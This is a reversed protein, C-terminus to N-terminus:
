PDGVPGILAELFSFFHIFLYLRDRISIGKEIHERKVRHQFTRRLLTHSACLQFLPFDYRFCYVKGSVHFYFCFAGKGRQIVFHQQLENCLTGVFQKGNVQLTSKTLREQLGGHIVVSIIADQVIMGLVVQQVVSYFCFGLVEWFFGHIRLVYEIGSSSSKPAELGTGSGLGVSACTFAHRAAFKVTRCLVTLAQPCLSSRLCNGLLALQQGQQSANKETLGSPTAETCWNSSSPPVLATMARCPAFNIRINPLNRCCFSSFSYALGATWAAEPISPLMMFTVSSFSALRPLM